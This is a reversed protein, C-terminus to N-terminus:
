ALSMVLVMNTQAAWGRKEIKKSWILEKPKKKIM